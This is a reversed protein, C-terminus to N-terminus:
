NSTNVLTHASLLRQQHEMKVNMDIKFPASQLVVTEMSHTAMMALLTLSEGM